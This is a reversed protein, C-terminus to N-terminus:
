RTRLTLSRKVSATSRGSVKPDYSTTLTTAVRSRKRLYRRGEATPRVNITRVRGKASIITTTTTGKALTVPRSGRTRLSVTVKGPVRLRISFKQARNARLGNIGSRAVREALTNSPTLLDGDLFQALARQQAEAAVTLPYSATAAPTAALDHSGDARPALLYACVVYDGAKSPAFAPDLNAFGRQFSGTVLTPDPSFTGSPYLIQQSGSGDDAAGQAQLTPACVKGPTVLVSLLSNVVDATGATALVLREKGTFTSSSGAPPSVALSGASAPAVGVVLFALVLPVLRPMFTM